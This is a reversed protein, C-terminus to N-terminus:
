SPTAFKACSSASICLRKKKRFKECSSFAFECDGSFKPANQLTRPVSEFSFMVFIIFPRTASGRKSLRSFPICSRSPQTHESQESFLFVYDKVYYVSGGM